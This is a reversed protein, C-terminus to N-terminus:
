NDCGNIYNYFDMKTCENINNKNFLDVLREEMLADMKNKYELNLEELNM